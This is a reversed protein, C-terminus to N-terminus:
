SFGNNSLSVKFQNELLSDENKSSKNQKLIEVINKMESANYLTTM